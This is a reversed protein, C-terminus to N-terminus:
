QPEVGENAVPGGYPDFPGAAIQHLREDSTPRNEANTFDQQFQLIPHQTDAGAVYPLPCVGNFAPDRLVLMLYDRYQNFVQSGYTSIIGMKADSDFALTALIYQGCLTRAAKFNNNKQDLASQIIDDSLVPIDRWDGLALRLQGIPSSPDIVM